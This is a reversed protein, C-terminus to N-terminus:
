AVKSQANVYGMAALLAEGSLLAGCPSAAIQLAHRGPDEPM